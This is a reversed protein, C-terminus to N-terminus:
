APPESLAHISINIDNNLNANEVLKKVISKDQNSMRCGLYIEKVRVNVFNTNGTVFIRKEQEYRWFDL